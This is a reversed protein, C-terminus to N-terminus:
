QIVQYYWKYATNSTLPTANSNITFNSTANNGVFVSSSGMLSATNANGPTIIVVPPTSYPISYIINALIASPTPMEGIRVEIVGSIDTGIIRLVSKKGSGPATEIVPTLSSGRLHRVTLIDGVTVNASTIVEKVTQNGLILNAPTAYSLKANVDVQTQTNLANLEQVAKALVPVLNSYTIGLVEGKSIDGEMGTVVEPVLKQVEQAIFGVQRLDNSILNYEVPRLQLVTELGYKSNRINKKIRADSAATWAVQGGISTIATNGIRVNNSASVSAGNGLATANTLGTNVVNANFGVLTNNSGTTIANGAYSGLGVNNSGTTVSNLAAYGLANNMQGSTNAFLAQFGVANNQSGTGNTYLSQVGIAVNQQGSVTNMLTQYGLATNYSHLNTAMSGVPGMLSQYGVATNYTLMPATTYSNSYNMMSQFGLAVSGSGSQNNYLSYYGLSTNEKGVNTFYSSGFGIATNKTGRYSSSNELWANQGAGYGFSTQGTEANNDIRGSRIGAVKFNLPSGDLTGLFKGTIVESVYQTLGLTYDTMGTNGLANWVLANGTSGLTSMVYATTALKTSKDNTSATVGTVNASSFITAGAVNLTGAVNLNGGVGVGGGVVLAGNSTANSATTNTVNLISSSGLTVNGGVRLQSAVGLGGSLILSGTSVSSADSTNTLSTIGTVSLTNNIQTAGMLSTAGAVRLQLGIGAGGAVQLAGTSTTTADTSNTTYLRGTTQVLNVATNGVVVKNSADM